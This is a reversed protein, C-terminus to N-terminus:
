IKQQLEKEIQILEQIRAIEIDPHVGRGERAYYALM